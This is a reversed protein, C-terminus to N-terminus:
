KTLDLFKQTLKSINLHNVDQAQYWKNHSKPHITNWWFKQDFFNGWLLYTPTKFHPAIMSIGAPYGLVGKSSRILGFAEDLDTKGLFDITFEGEKDYHLIKRGMGNVDWNAGIIAFKRGTTKYIKQMSEAIKEFNFKKEWNSYFGHNIFYGIYYEGYEKKIKEGYEKEKLSIFMPIDWDAKYEKLFEDTTLGSELLANFCIFYDHELYDEYIGKSDKNCVTADKWVWNQIDKDKVNSYGQASVFPIKQTYEFSRNLAPTTSLTKIHPIGLNNVKAFSKIKTMTWYTDGIGPPVLITTARFRKKCLVFWIHTNTEVLKEIKFNFRKSIFNIHNKSLKWIGSNKKIIGYLNGGQKLIRYVESIVQDVDNFKELEQNLIVSKFYDSPFYNDKLPKTYTFENKNNKIRWEVGYADNNNLRLTNLLENTGSGVDLTKGKPNFPFKLKKPEVKNKEKCIIKKTKCNVCVLFINTQVFNQSGCLCKLSIKSM